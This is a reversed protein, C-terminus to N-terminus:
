KLPKNTTENNLKNKNGFIDIDLAVYVNKGNTYPNSDFTSIYFTSWNKNELKKQTEIMGVIHKQEIHCFSHTRSRTHDISQTHTHSRTHM